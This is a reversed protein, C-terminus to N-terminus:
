TRSNFFAAVLASISGSVADGRVAGTVALPVDSHFQGRTTRSVVTFGGGDAVHVYLPALSTSLKLEQCADAGAAPWAEIGGNRNSVDARGRIDRLLVPGFQNSVTLAGNVAEVAISVNRGNLVVNGKLRAAEIAGFSHEVRYAGAGDSVTVTGQANIVTVDASVGTVAVTGFRNQVHVTTRDPIALEYDVAYSLQRDSQETAPYRTRVIAATASSDDVDIGVGQAYATAAEATAASVRIRAVIQVDDGAHTRVLVDGNRHEVRLSAPRTLTVTREFTRVAIDSQRSAAAVDPTTIVLLAMLFTVFPRSPHKM